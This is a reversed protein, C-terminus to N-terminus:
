PILLKKRHKLAQKFILFEKVVRMLVFLSFIRWSPSFLFIKCKRLAPSPFVKEHWVWTSPRLYSKKQMKEVIELILNRPDRPNQADDAFNCYTGISMQFPRIRSFDKLLFDFLTLYSSKFHKSPILSARITRKWCGVHIIKATFPMFDHFYQTYISHLSRKYLDLLNM